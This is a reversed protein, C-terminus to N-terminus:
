FKEIREKLVNSYQIMFGHQRVLREQEEPKVQSFKESSIFLQLKSIKEDLETKEDIVRQQYSEM